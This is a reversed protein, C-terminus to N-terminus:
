RARSDGQRRVGIALGAFGIGLMTWTSPEPADSQAPAASVTLTGVAVNIGPQTSHTGMTSLADPQFLFFRSIHDADQFQISDGAGGRLFHVAPIPPDVCAVCSLMAPDTKMVSIVPGNLVVPLFDPAVFEFAETHSPSGIPASTTATFSYLVPDGYVACASAMLIAGVCAFNKAGSIM